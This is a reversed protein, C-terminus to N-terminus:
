DERINDHNCNECHIVHYMKHEEMGMSKAVENYNESVYHFNGSDDYYGYSPNSESIYEGCNDCFTGFSHWNNSKIPVFNVILVMAIIAVMVFSLVGIIAKTHDRKNDENDEIEALKTNSLESKLSTIEKLLNDYTSLRQDALIMEDKNYSLVNYNFGDYLYRLYVVMGKEVKNFDNCNVQIEGFEFPEENFCEIPKDSKYVVTYTTNTQLNGNLKGDGYSSFSGSVYGSSFGLNNFYSGGSNGDIYGSGRYKSHGEISGEISKERFKDIITVPIHKAKHYCKNFDDRRLLTPEEIFIESGNDYDLELTLQAQAKALELEKEKLKSNLDNIKDIKEKATM